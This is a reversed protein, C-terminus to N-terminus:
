CHLLRVHLKQWPCQCVLSCEVVDFTKDDTMLTKCDDVMLIWALIVDVDCTISTVPVCTGGEAETGCPFESSRDGKVTQLELSCLVVVINVLLFQESDNPGKLFPASIKKTGLNMHVHVVVRQLVKVFLFVEGLM